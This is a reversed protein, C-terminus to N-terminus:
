AKARADSFLLGFSRRSKRDQLYAIFHESDIVMDSGFIASYVVKPKANCQRAPLGEFTDSDVPKLDPARTDRLYSVYDNVARSSYEWLVADRRYRLYSDFFTDRPDIKIKGDGADVGAWLAERDPNIAKIKDPYYLKAMNGVVVDGLKVREPNLSGALGILFTYDPKFQAVAAMVVAATRTNGMDKLVRFTLEIRRRNRLEWTCHYSLLLDSYKELRFSGGRATVATFVYKMEEDLPVFILIEPTTM